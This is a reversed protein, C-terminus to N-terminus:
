FKVEKGQYFDLVKTRFIYQYKARSLDSIASNLNNLSINFETANLVGATFRKEANEKATKLSEVRKQNAQYTAFAARADTYAQEITQRLQNRVLQANVQAREMVIRSNQINNSVSFRNFIPITMTIGWNQRFSEKLQLGYTFDTIEGNPISKPQVVIQSPDNKLYGIETMYISNGGSAKFYQKQASSYNTFVSGTLSIRPYLSAQAVKIGYTSSTIRQDAAKIEPMNGQAIDFISAPTALTANTLEPLQPVLIDFNEPAPIFLIQKLSLLSLMIANEANVIQLETNAKQAKLDWLVGEALSGAKVLKETREVQVAINQDQIKANELLEKNLLTQLYANFISLIMDNKAKEFDFNTASVESQAQKISNQINFGNFLTFDGSVGFTNSQVTQNIFQNTFPDISRGYNYSHSAQGNLSPLRNDKAQQAAREQSRISLQSLKVQLNNALAFDVCEQISWQKQANVTLNAFLIASFIVSFFYKQM